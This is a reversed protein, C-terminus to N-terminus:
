LTLDNKIVNVTEANIDTKDSIIKIAATSSYSITTTAPLAVNAHTASSGPPSAPQPTTLSPSLSTVLNKTNAKLLTEITEQAVRTYHPAHPASRAAHLVHRSAHPEARGSRTGSAALPPPANDLSPPRAQPRKPRPTTPRSRRRRLARACHLTALTSLTTHMHTRTHHHVGSTILDAWLSRLCPTLDGGGKILDVGALKQALLLELQANDGAADLLAAMIIARARKEPSFRDFWRRRAAGSKEVVADREETSIGVADPDFRIVSKYTYHGDTMEIRLDPRVHLKVVVAAAQSM